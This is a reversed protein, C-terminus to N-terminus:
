IFLSTFDDGGLSTPAISPTSVSPPDGPGGGVVAELDDENMEGDVRPADNAPNPILPDHSSM